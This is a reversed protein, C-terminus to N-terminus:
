RGEPPAGTRGGTRRAPWGTRRRWAIGTCLWRGAVLGARRAAEGAIAGSRVACILENQM